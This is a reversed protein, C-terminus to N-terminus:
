RRHRSYNESRHGDQHYQESRNQYRHDTIVRDQQYNRNSNNHGQYTSRNQYTTNNPYRNYGDNHYGSNVNVGYGTRNSYGSYGPTMYCSTLSLLCLVILIQILKKMMCRRFHKYVLTVFFRHIPFSGSFKYKVRHEVKETIM